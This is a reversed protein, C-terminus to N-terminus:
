EIQDREIMGVMSGDACFLWSPFSARWILFAITADSGVALSWNRVIEIGPRIM